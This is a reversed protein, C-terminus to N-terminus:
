WELAEGIDLSGQQQREKDGRQLIVIYNPFSGGGGATVIQWGHNVLQTLTREARGRFFLSFQVIKVEVPQGETM